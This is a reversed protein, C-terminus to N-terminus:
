HGKQEFSENKVDDEKIQRECAEIVDRIVSDSPKQFGDPTMNVGFRIADITHRKLEITDLGYYVKLVQDFHPSQDLVAHDYLRAFKM